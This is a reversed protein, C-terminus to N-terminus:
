LYFGRMSLWWMAMNPAWQNLELPSITNVDCFWLFSPDHLKMLPLKEESYTVVKGRKTAMFITTTSIHRYNTVHDQLVIHGLPGAVKHTVAGRPCGRQDQFKIPSLREGNCAEWLLKKLLVPICYLIERFVPCYLVFVELICYFTLFYLVSIWFIDGKHSFHFYVFYLHM